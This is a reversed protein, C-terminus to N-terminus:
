QVGDGAAERLAAQITTLSGTLFGPEWDGPPRHAEMWGVLMCWQDRNMSVPIM